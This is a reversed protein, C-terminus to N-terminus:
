ETYPCSVEFQPKQLEQSDLCIYLIKDTDSDTGEPQRDPRCPSPRKRKKDGSISLVYSM